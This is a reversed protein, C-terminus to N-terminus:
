FFISESISCLSYWFCFIYYVKSQEELEGKLQVYHKNTEDYEANFRNKLKEKFIKRRKAAEEENRAITPGIKEEIKDSHEIKDGDATIFFFFFFRVLFNLGDDSLVFSFFFM